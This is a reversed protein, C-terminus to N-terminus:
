EYGGVRSSRFWPEGLSSVKYTIGRGAAVGLWFAVYARGNRYDHPNGDIDKGASEIPGSQDVGYLFLAKYEKHVALAIMYSLDNLFYNTKFTRQLVGLPYDETVCSLFRGYGVITLHRKKAIELGENENAKLTPDDFCFVKDYRKDAYKPDSLVSVAAWIDVGDTFPCQSKSPGNGLLILKDEQMIKEKQPPRPAFEGPDTLEKILNEKTIM